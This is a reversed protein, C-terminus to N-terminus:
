PDNVALGPNNKILLKYRLVIDENYLIYLWEITPQDVIYSYIIKGNIPDTPRLLASIPTSYITTDLFPDSSVQKDKGANATEIVILITDGPLAEIVGKEPIYSIINYKTFAKQRFPSHRFEAMLPPNEMLTWRLDDPYHERIFQDPASLFYQEDLQRIFEGGHWSIFGSAWTVDLLQWSSDVWVANWSHNPRFRQIKKGTETRAYGNIVEARIGSFSCLTKFLRAYGDCVAVRDELVTEAVREDLPKLALTDHIEEILDPSNRKRSYIPKTRYAINETIWYFIASVKQRDTSCSLTLQQSLTVPSISESIRDKSSIKLGAKNRQSFLVSSIFLFCITLAWKM